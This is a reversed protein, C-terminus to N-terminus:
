KLKEALKARRDIQLKEFVARLHARVTSETIALRQAIESNRLGKAALCAVEYERSTLDSPFEVPSIADHLINWGDGYREKLEIFKDFHIPYEEEILEDALGKLLWSYAV